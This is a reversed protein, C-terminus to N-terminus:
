KKPSSMVFVTQWAWWKLKPIKMVVADIYELINLLPSFFSYRRFPVALLTFLHFFHMDIHNFYQKAFAFDKKRMIHAVEWETRLNPTLKRYLHIAPNHAIAENCIMKGNPRLIRALEPFAKHLDLHHLAGYETIIDFANDEFQTEEADQVSYSIINGYGEKQAKITCNEISVESIDIGVVENAGYSAILRGDEGNGCCYDLVKKGKCNDKFWNIVMHRSKQEISYYKMNAWLPNKKITDEIVPSWRTEAVHHDDIVKRLKDHFEREILKRDLM